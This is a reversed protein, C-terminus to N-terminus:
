EPVYVMEMPLGKSDIEPKEPITPLGQKERSATVAAVLADLIDDEAVKSNKCTDQACKVVSNTYSFVRRLVKMRESFGEPSKKRHMMSKGGNLAWFCVEPHIERIRSRALKERRLFEDVERIKPVIGWTQKSLKKGTNRYNVKSAEQYADAYVAARCPVRFVSSRRAGLLHHAEIDCVRGETGSDRLGIPIDILILKAHKYTQWLDDITKFVSVSWGNREDLKVAFWGERCGDAGVYYM